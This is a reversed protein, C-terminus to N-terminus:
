IMHNIRLMLTLAFSSRARSGVEQCKKRMKAMKELDNEM